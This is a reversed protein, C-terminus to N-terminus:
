KFRRSMRHQRGTDFFRGFGAFLHFQFSKVQGNM